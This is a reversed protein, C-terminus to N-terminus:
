AEKSAAPQSSIGSAEIPTQLEHAIADAVQEWTVGPVEDSLAGTTEPRWDLGLAAYVPALAAVVRGAGEVVVVVGVSSGGRIVRQGAGALKVAGRANVSHAGACYEGPVEGVRADVGLARFARALAAATAEFRATIQTRPDPHRVAHALHLTGEHYVAARGGALRVVPEFGAARAAAVAEAYGPSVVDRRGFAIAPGPRSIRVTDPAESGAVARM